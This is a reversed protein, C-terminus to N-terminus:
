EAELGVVVASRIELATEFEERRDLRKAVRRLQETHAREVADTERRDFGLREGIQEWHDGPVLFTAREGNEAVLEFERRYDDLRPGLEEQVSELLEPLRNPSVSAKAATLVLLQGEIPITTM